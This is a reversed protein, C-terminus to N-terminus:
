LDGRAEGTASLDSFKEFRRTLWEHRAADLSSMCVGADENLRTGIFQSLSRLARRSQFEGM